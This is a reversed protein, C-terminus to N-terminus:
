SIMIDWPHSVKEKKTAKALAFEGNKARVSESRKTNGMTRDIVKYTYKRTGAEARKRQEEYIM